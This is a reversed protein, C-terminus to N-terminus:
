FEDDVNSYVCNIYDRAEQCSPCGLEDCMDGDGQSVAGWMELYSGCVPCTGFGTDEKLFYPDQEDPYYDDAFDYAM